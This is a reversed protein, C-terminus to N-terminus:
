AMNLPFVGKLTQFLMFFRTKKESLLGFNIDSVFNNWSKAYYFKTTNVSKVTDFAMWCSWLEPIEIGYKQIIFALSLSIKPEWPLTYSSLQRRPQQVIYDPLLKSVNWLHKSGGDDPCDPLCRQFMPLNRGSQMACSVLLSGDELNFMNQKTM